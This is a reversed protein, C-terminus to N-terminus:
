YFCLVNFDQVKEMQLRVDVLWRTVAVHKPARQSCHLSIAIDKVSDLMRAVDEKIDFGSRALAIDRPLLLNFFGNNVTLHKGSVREDWASPFFSTVGQPRMAIFM